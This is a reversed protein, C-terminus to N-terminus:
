AVVVLARPLWPLSLPVLVSWGSGIVKM